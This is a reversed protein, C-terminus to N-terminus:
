VAARRSSRRPLSLRSTEQPGPKRTDTSPLSASDVLGGWRGNLRSGEASGCILFFLLLGWPHRKHVIAQRYKGDLCTQQGGREALFGATPGVLCPTALTNIITQVTEDKQPMLSGVASHSSPILGTPPGRSTWRNWVAKGTM